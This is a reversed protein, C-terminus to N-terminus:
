WYDHDSLLMAKGKRVLNEQLIIIARSLQERYENREATSSNM